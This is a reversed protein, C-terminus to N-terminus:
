VELREDRRALVGLLSLRALRNNADTPFQALLLDLHALAKISDDDYRDLALAAELTLRHDPSAAVLEGYSQAARPRDHSDLAREVDYVRDYLVADSLDLGELLAAHEHPVLAMARPGSARCQELLEAALAEGTFVASPDRVLYTGRRADYGIVAVLHGSGPAILTLTFPVGRDLLTVASDWTLTFERVAWGHEEAWQRGRHSPTGAYCIADAVEIHEVGKGWFRAVASLTAPACTDHHQHVLPVPLLLRRAGPPVAGLRAAVARHFRTDAARALEAAEAFSGLKCALDSRLAMMGKRHDRDALPALGDARDLAQVAEEVRGLEDLIAARRITVRFSEVHRDAEALLELAEEQRDLTQLSYATAL